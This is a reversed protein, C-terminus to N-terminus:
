LWGGHESRGSRARGGGRREQGPREQNRSKSGRSIGCSSATRGERFRARQAAPNSLGRNGPDISVLAIDDGLHRVCIPHLEQVGNRPISLSAEPFSSKCDSGERQNDADTRDPRISHSATLVFLRDTRGKVIVGSGVSKEGNWSIEIRVVAQKRTDTWASDDEASAIASWHAAALTVSLGIVWTASTIRPRM